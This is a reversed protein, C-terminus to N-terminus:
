INITDVVQHQENFFLKREKIGSGSILTCIKKMSNMWERLQITTNYDENYGSGVFYTYFNSCWKNESILYIFGAGLNVESIYIDVNKMPISAPGIGKLMNEFKYLMDHLEEKVLKLSDSNMIGISAFYKIDNVYGWIVSNDWIYLAKELKSKLRIIKDNLKFFENPVEWNEYNEFESTGVYYYGWKFYSFKVLSEHPIIFELPLHTIMSGYDTSEWDIINSLQQLDSEIGLALTNISQAKMPSHMTFSPFHFHESGNFLSGDLSINLKLALIAMEDASFNVSGNLRRSASEKEIDLTESILSVLISRKDVKQKLANIFNNIFLSQKM